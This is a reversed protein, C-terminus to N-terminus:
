EARMSIIPDVLTARRSPILAAILSVVGLLIPVTLFTTTDHADVGQLLAGLLRVAFWAGPLGIALGAAVLRGSDALVLGLVNSRTAGLAIRVGMERTRQAVAYAIVGYLGVCALMLSLGAFVSLVSGQLRQRWLSRSVVEDFTQVQYLAVRPDLERVANRLTPLLARADDRPTKIAIVAQRVPMAAYSYFAAPGMAQPLTYHRYDRLVGVVTGLSDSAAPVKIRKGIPDGGPFAKALQENVMLVPHISDRDAETLWRGRVLPVGIAPFYGPTVFQYHVDLEQGKPRPAGEIEAFSKLNWGSFPIGQAAGVGKVGPLSALKAILRDTFSKAEARTPYGLNKPLTYRASLIGQEDFGLDTGELNRYSRVLLLAGVMLVVSLALEGVVLAM